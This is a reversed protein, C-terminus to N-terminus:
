TRWSDRLSHAARAQRYGLVVGIAPILFLGAVGGHKDAVAQAPNPGVILLSAAIVGAGAAFRVTSHAVIGERVPRAQRAWRDRARM